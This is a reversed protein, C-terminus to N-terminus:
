SACRFMDATMTVVVGDTSPRLIVSYLPMTVPSAIMPAFM